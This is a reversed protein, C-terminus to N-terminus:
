KAAEIDETWVGPKAGTKMADTSVSEVRAQKFDFVKLEVPKIKPKKKSLLGEVKKIFSAANLDKVEGQTLHFKKVKKGNKDLILFGPFNKVNWTSKLAENRERYKAPALSEDMPFDLYALVLKEKAFETWEDKEFVKNILVKCPPCWDSATFLVFTHTNTEKALKLAADYDYSWKGLEAGDVLLDLKSEVQVKDVKVPVKEPPLDETKNKGCSALLVVALFTINFLKM